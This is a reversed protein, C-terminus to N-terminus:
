RLRVVLRRWDWKGDAAAQKMNQEEVLARYKEESVLRRIAKHLLAVDDLRAHLALELEEWEKHSWVSM